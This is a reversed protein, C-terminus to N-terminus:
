LDKWAEDEEPTLWDKAWANEFALCTQGKDKKKEPNLEVLDGMKRAIASLLRANSKSKSKIILTEM